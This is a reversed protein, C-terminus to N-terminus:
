RDGQGGFDAGLEDIEKDARTPKRRTLSMAPALDGSGDTRHQGIRRPALTRGRTM